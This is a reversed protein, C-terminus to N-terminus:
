REVDIRYVVKLFTRSVEAESYEPHRRRISALATQRLVDSLEAAIRSRGEAGLERYREIHYAFADPSTDAPRM